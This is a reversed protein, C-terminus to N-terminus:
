IQKLRNGGASVWRRASTLLYPSTIHLPGSISFTLDPHEAEKGPM